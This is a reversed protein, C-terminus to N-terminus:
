KSAALVNAEFDEILKVHIDTELPAETLYRNALFSADVKRQITFYAISMQKNFRDVDIDLRIPRYSLDEIVDGMARSIGNALKTVATHAELIPADTTFSFANLFKWHTIMDPEYRLGFRETAWRLAEDIIRKSDDTSSQTELLIGNFYITMKTVNIGDWHGDLFEVGKTEDFQEPTKPFTQFQFREVLEGVVNPFFVKGGPNLENIDFLAIARALLIAKLQM